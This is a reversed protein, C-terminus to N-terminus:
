VGTMSMPVALTFAGIVSGIAPLTILARTPPEYGNAKLIGYNRLFDAITMLVLPLCLNLVMNGNFEPVYVQPVFLLSGISYDAPVLVLTLVLAVVVAAAQNPVKNLVPIHPWILFVAVTAIGIIPLESVGMVIGTGYSMYAGALMAMIIPMPLLKALKGIIGTMGLVLMIVSSLIFAGAMEEVSFFTLQNGIVLVATITPMALLPMKYYLSMLTSVVGAIFYAFAVFSIIQNSEFGAQTGVNVFVVVAGTLSFVLSVLFQSLNNKTFTMDKWGQRIGVGKEYLFRM